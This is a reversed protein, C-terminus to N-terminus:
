LTYKDKYRKIDIDSILYITLFTPNYKVVMEILKEPIYPKVINRSGNELEVLGAEELIKFIYSKMKVRTDQKWNDIEPYDISKDRLFKEFDHEFLKYSFSLYKDRIVEIIFEHLLRYKRACALLLILRASSLDAQNLYDLLEDSLDQLRTKIESFQKQLTVTKNKQLLNDEIVVKRVEDWSKSESYLAAVKLTENILLTRSIFSYKM